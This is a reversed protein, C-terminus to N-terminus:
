GSARAVVFKPSDDGTFERVKGRSYIGLMEFENLRKAIEKVGEHGIVRPHLELAVSRAENLLGGMGELVKLEAGEVDIKVVDLTEVVEDMRKTEVTETEITDFPGNELSHDGASEGVNLISEGGRRSLAIPFSKIASGFQNLKINRNFIEYNTPHPEFGYIDVEQFKSAVLLSYYGWNAGVDVFTDTEKLSEMLIDRFIAEKGGIDGKLYLSAGQSSLAPNVLMDFDKLSLCTYRDPLVNKDFASVLGGLRDFRSLGTRNGVRSILNRITRIM